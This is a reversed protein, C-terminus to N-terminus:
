GASQRERAGESGGIAVRTEIGSHMEALHERWEARLAPPRPAGIEEVRVPPLRQV